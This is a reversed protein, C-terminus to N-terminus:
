PEGRLWAVDPEWGDIVEGFGYERALREADRFLAQQAGLEGSAVILELRPLLEDATWHGGGLPFHELEWRLFKNFPRVRGHFAFLATLFPPVSEAADLHAELFLGNRLNKASRYYSNVYTDLGEAAIGNAAEAPLVSKEQVLAAIRGALKDVVVQAHAYSYRDWESESGIAGAQEFASLSLVAVEVPSGHPTARRLSCEGAADDRVVLRVDWDSDPRAAPGRGRSGTLVLGVVADDARSIEVLREYELEGKV